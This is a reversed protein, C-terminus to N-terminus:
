SDFHLDLIYWYIAIDFLKSEYILSSHRSNVEAMECKYLCDHLRIYNTTTDRLMQGESSAEHGLTADFGM